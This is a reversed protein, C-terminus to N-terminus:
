RFLVGLQVTLFRTESDDQVQHLDAGLELSFPAKLPLRGGLGLNFGLDGSGSKPNYYGLGGRLYLRLGSPTPFLTELNASAHVWRPHDVGVASEATLQALGLIGKLNWRDTLRFGVDAAVYINADAIRNLDDLPHASGVHFSYLFPALRPDSDGCPSSDRGDPIGDNDSDPDVVNALGDRDCDGDLEDGDRVGDNDSDPDFIGVIGDKDHDGQPEDEDVLGDGDSDGSAPLDVTAVSGETTAGGSCDDGPYEATVQWPGGETVVLFDSFCGAADTTVTRYIPYGSPHEYRLVIEENPRPPNTCGQAAIERCRKSQASGEFSAAAHIAGLRDETPQQDCRGVRTRLELLTRNRLDVQFTGGGVLLLTDGSPKWSTVRIQHDTCVPADDPPKVTLSGEIRQGPLLLASRPSFTRSWGEPLDEGRFYYLQEHDEENTLGFRYTVPDYPSSTSSTVEQLNQQARNNNVNVDNFVNPIEVEACSHPDGDEDPTWEVYGVFEDGDDLQPVFIQGVFRNFDAAGGVTHYPESIRVFITFDFAPSPGPNSIRVYLRNVEGQVPQDGRDAPVLGQDEDFGDKQSDVWIDPSTWVPSGVTIRVDNDTDPPDYNILINRDAGGTGAQVTIDLGEATTRSDGTEFAGDDLSPTGLEDDIIRVPGQGQPVNENVYYLLVGEEPLTGDVSGASNSRAEIFYFVDEDDITSAGETLGLAIAKRNTATSSVFNIGTTQSVPSGAAPRPIYEVSSGHSTLWTAREKSWALFGTELFPYAMHDWTDVHPQAFVVNPHAYLDLLGFQHALGHTLRPGADNYISHVSVSLRRTLGDPLEYPWPGTTAWDGTFGPDNLMVVMRAIDDAPDATGQDFTNPDAAILDAVVDEAMEVLVSRSPHYYFTSPQPLTVSAYAPVLTATGYSVEDIYVSADTILNTVTTVGPPSGALLDSVATRVVLTNQPGTPAPPDPLDATVVLAYGSPGVAIGNAGESVTITYTGVAPAAVVVQELVNLGDATGGDAISQGTATNLDNGSFTTGDPATVVLDLDNITLSGAADAPGAATNPPADPESWVLTVRLPQAGGAVTFTHTRSEGSFLGSAKRVDWVTLNRADGAFFLGDDLLVRGWGEGTGAVGPYGAIGTADVTANALTAKLLNGTPTFRHHPQHTGSPYWGETYYQRVLAALGAVAPAAFSTGGATRTGCATGGDASVIGAGPAMVDPKRRGDLTFQTVGSSFNNQSPSQQTANVVLVNKANTGPRIPGANDPGFVVLHDENEWTFRDIDASVQTYNNTNKPDWSNTHVFAGDAEAQSLYSFVSTGGGTNLDLDNLNGHTLRARPANGNNANPAASLADNGVDEGAANGASFTGHDGFGEGSTNRLGVVKRHDPRVTNDTDDRFFCNGVDIVNDIHGIIQNEGQLQRDWIPRSNAVNSQVVWSTTGNNLTVEGVEEIYKVAPIRAIAEAEAPTAARVQMRQIDHEPEDTTTVVEFGLGRVRDALAGLDTGPFAVVTMLIGPEARRSRTVFEHEGLKPDIKFRPEYLGSWRFFDLARLEEIQDASLEELFAFKPVYQNLRLGFREKLMATQERTLPGDFQVIRWATEALEEDPARPVRRAAEYALPEFREGRLTIATDRQAREATQASIGPTTLLVASLTIWLFKEFHRM